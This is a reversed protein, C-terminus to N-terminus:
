VTAELALAAAGLMGADDIQEAQVIRADAFLSPVASDRAARRAPGLLHEGAKAIQGGVAVVDPSFVNILSGIGTGLYLGVEEWVEKALADGQDAAEALIRPTVKALDGGALSTILSERGRKLRHLARQVIADRQCYGELAGYSGANCDLGGHQVVIHGLEAGGKNGGLLLLPGTAKGGVAQPSMVVGGGIGTGITLLVLCKAQNQGVGFRYEGLAALNADNGTVIPAFRGRPALSEALLAKLPIDQWYRFIGDQFSGFNPAWRVLSREDDIHGPIAIGIAEPQASASAAAREIVDTIAAVVHETGEQARSPANFSEGAPSGDEHFAGARVNTGGLDVGIV